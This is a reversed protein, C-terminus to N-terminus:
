YGLLLDVRNQFVVTIGAGAPEVRAGQLSVATGVLGLDLPIPLQLVGTPTTYLSAAVPDILLSGSWGPLPLPAVLPVGAAVVGLIGQGGLDVSVPLTAGVVPLGTQTGLPNGLAAVM